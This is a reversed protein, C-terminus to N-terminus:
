VTTVPKGEAHQPTPETRSENLQLTQTPQHYVPSLEVGRYYLERLLANHEDIVERDFELEGTQRLLPRLRRKLEKITGSTDYKEDCSQPRSDYEINVNNAM